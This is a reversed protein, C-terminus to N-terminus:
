HVGNMIHKQHPEVSKPEDQNHQSPAMYDELLRANKRIEELTYEQVISGNEFVIVLMDQSLCVLSDTFCSVVFSVHTICHLSLCSNVCYDCLPSCTHEIGGLHFM